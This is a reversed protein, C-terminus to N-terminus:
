TKEIPATADKYCKPKLVVYKEKFDVKNIIQSHKRRIHEYTYGLESAIEKLTLGEVYKMRLIHQEIGRFSYIVKKLDYLNNMNLALDYELSEIIDELKSAKSEKVLSYKGLDNSDKWRKLENKYTGLEWDLVAIKQEWEQYKSLWEYM